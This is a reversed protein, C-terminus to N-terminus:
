DAFQFLAATDTIEFLRHVPRPGRLLALRQGNQVARQQASILIHLGNSDMFELGSLDVLLRQDGESEAMRIEHELLRCSALDLEGQLTLVITDHRRERDILLAALVAQDGM